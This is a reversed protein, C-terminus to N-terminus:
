RSVGAIPTMSSTDRPTRGRISAHHAPAVKAQDVVVLAEVESASKRSLGEAGERMIPEAGNGTLRFSRVM